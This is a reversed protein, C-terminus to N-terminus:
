WGPLEVTNWRRKWLLCLNRFSLQLTTWLQRSPLISFAGQNVPSSGQKTVCEIQFFVLNLFGGPYLDLQTAESGLLITVAQWPGDPGYHKSATPIQLPLPGSQLALLSHPIWGLVFLMLAWPYDMSSSWAQLRNLELLLHIHFDLAIFLFNFTSASKHHSLFRTFLLSFHPGESASPRYM